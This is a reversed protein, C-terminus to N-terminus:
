IVKNSNMDRVVVRIFDTLLSQIDRELVTEMQASWVLEGTDTTYLNAEVTVIEFQSITSPQYIIERRSDFYSRYNRHRNRDWNRSSSSGTSTVRGPNVVEETRSGTVFAMLIVDAGSEAANLAIKDEDIDERSSISLYSPIGTVEFPTLQRTFEDEFMRRTREQNALGVIFITNVDGTFNSDSWSGSLTTSSCASLVMLSMCLLLIYLKQRRKAIKM